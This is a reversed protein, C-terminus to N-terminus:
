LGERLGTLGGRRVCASGIIYIEEDDAMKMAM